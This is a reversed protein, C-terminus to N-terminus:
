VEIDMHTQRSHNEPRPSRLILGALRAYAELWRALGRGEGHGADFAARGTAALRDYLLPDEFLRVLAPALEGATPAQAILGSSEHRVLGATAPEGAAVVPKSQAWAEVIGLGIADAESTCLVVDAAAFARARDLDPTLERLPVRWRLALKRLRPPFSPMWVTALPLDRVAALVEALPAADLAYPLLIVTAEEATAMMSRPLPAVLDGPAFPPLLWVREEPWGRWVAREAIEPSLALLHRCYRLALASEHDTAVGATVVEEQRPLRAMAELDWVVVLDPKFLALEEAVASRSRRDLWPRFPLALGPQGYDARREWGPRRALLVQQRLEEPQAFTGAVRDFLSTRPGLDYPGAFLQSIRM